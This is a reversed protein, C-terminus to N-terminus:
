STKQQALYHEIGDCIGRALLMRYNKDQMRTADEENTLFGLEILAAPIAAGALVQLFSRKVHRDTITGSGVRVQNLVGAHICSALLESQLCRGHMIANVTQTHRDNRSCSQVVDFFFTEIGTAKANEAGNAHISVLIAADRTKDNILTRDDLAVFIDSARTLFVDFGRRRLLSALEMGVDLDVEKEKLGFCGHAGTDMGGHGCDVIVGPRNGSYVTRLIKAHADDVKKVWAKNYFTIILRRQKGPTDVVTYTLGIKEHPYRVTLIVGPTPKEVKSFSISYFPSQKEQIEKIMQACDPEQVTTFPFFFSRECLDDHDSVQKCAVPDIVPEQVFKLILKGLELFPVDAPVKHADSEIRHHFVTQLQNTPTTAMSLNAASMFFIVVSAGLCRTTGKM